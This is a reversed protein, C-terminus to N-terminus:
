SGVEDAPKGMPGEDLGAKENCEGMDEQFQPDEFDYAGPEDESGIAIRMGGDSSVEPDPMDYGKDRMCQAAEILQDQLEAVEEASPAEMEGRVEEMIPSCKEEAAEFEEKSPGTGDAGPGGTIAMGGRGSGNDFEPDPMDIGNDRMCQAYDLMADEFEAESVEGDGSGSSSDSAGEGESDDVSAIGDDDSDDDGGSTLAFATGGILALVVVAAVALRGGSFVRRKETVVDDLPPLDGLSSLPPLDVPEYPPEAPLEAAPPLDTEETPEEDGGGEDPLRPDEPTENM